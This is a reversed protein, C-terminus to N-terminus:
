QDDCAVTRDTEPWPDVQLSVLTAPNMTDNILLLTRGVDLWGMGEVNGDRGIRVHQPLLELDCLNLPEGIPEGTLSFRQLWKYRYVRNARDTSSLLVILSQGEGGWVLDPARFAQSSDVPSPVNLTIFNERNLCVLGGQVEPSSHVCVFSPMVDFSPSDFGARVGPFARPNLFGGEWLTAIRGDTSVAVGELGRGAMESMDPPYEAHIGDGAVLARLRESLLALEGGQLFTIGEPDIALDGFDAHITATEITISGGSSTRLNHAQEETLEYRLVLGPNDDGVMFLTDELAVLGSAELLQIPQAHLPLAMCAIVLAPIIRM